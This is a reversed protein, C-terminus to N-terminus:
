SKGAHNVVTAEWFHGGGCVLNVTNPIEPVQERRRILDYRPEFTDKGEIRYQDMPVECLLKAKFARPSCGCKPCKDPYLKM